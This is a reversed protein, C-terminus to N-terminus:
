EKRVLWGEFLLEFSVCLCVIYAGLFVRWEKSYPFRESVLVCLWLFVLCQWILVRGIAAYFRLVSATLFGQLYFVSPFLRRTHSIVFALILQPRTRIALWSASNFIKRDAEVTRFIRLWGLGRFSGSDDTLGFSVSSTFTREIAAQYGFWTQDMSVVIINQQPSQGIWM